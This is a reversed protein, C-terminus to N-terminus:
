APSVADPLAEVADATVGNGAHQVPMDAKLITFLFRGGRVGDHSEAWIRGGHAEVIHKCIALGLGTGDDGSRSIDAQYFREFVRERLEVPVGPGNDFVSVTVEDAQEAATITIAEKPPSWKIANHILNGLVRKLQDADCLVDCEGPAQCVISLDKREAQAAFREISENVVSWLPTPVLRMIAQGSEIMSLDLLEQSLWMLADTEMAIEKLSQISAKRKPRVADLFLGEIILRIRTIPTRLEHSINAVLDRRARNLSVLNSIDQMAVGVFRRGGDCSIVHARARFTSGNFEFQEEPPDSDELAYDVLSRLEPSPIFTDLKQGIPDRQGFVRRAAGNAMIIKAEEDLALAVDFAVGSVTDFLAKSRVRERENHLIRAELERIIQDRSELDRRLSLSQRSMRYAILAAFVFLTILLGILIEM